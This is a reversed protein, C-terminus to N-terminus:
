VASENPNEDNLDSSRRLQVFHMAVILLFYVEIALIPMFILSLVTHDYAFILALIVILYVIAMFISKGLWMAVTILGSKVSLLLAIDTLLDVVLILTAQVRNKMMTDTILEHIADGSQSDAYYWHMFLPGPIFFIILHYILRLFDIIVYSTGIVLVGTTISFRCFFKNILAM